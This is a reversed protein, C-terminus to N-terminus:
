GYRHSHINTYIHLVNCFLCVTHQINEYPRSGSTRALDHFFLGRLMTSFINPTQFCLQDYCEQREMEIENIMGPM